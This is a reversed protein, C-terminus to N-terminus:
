SAAPRIVGESTVLEWTDGWPKFHEAVGAGPVSQGLPVTYSGNPGTVAAEDRSAGTLEYGSIVTGRMPRHHSSAVAPLVTKPRSVREARHVDASLERVETALGVESAHDVSVTKMEARVKSMDTTMQSKTRVLASKLSTMATDLAAIEAKLSDVTKKLVANKAQISATEGQLKRMTKNSAASPPAATVAASLPSLPLPTAPLLHKGTRADSSPIPRVAARHTSAPTRMVVSHPAQQLPAPHDAPITTTRTLPSQAAVPHYNDRHGGFLHTAALIGGGVVIVAVASGMLITRLGPRARSIGEDDMDVADEHGWSREAPDARLDNYEETHLGNDDVEPQESQKSSYGFPDEDTGTTKSPWAQGAQDVGEFDILGAQPGNTPLGNYGEDTNLSDAEGDPDMRFDTM